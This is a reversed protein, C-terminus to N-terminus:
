TRPPRLDREIEASVFSVALPPSWALHEVRTSARATEPLVHGKLMAACKCPTGAPSPKAPARSADHTVGHCPTEAEAAAQEANTQQVCHAAAAEMRGSFVLAVCLALVLSILRRSM